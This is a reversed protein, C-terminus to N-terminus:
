AQTAVAEQDSAAGSERSAAKRKFVLRLGRMFASASDMLAPLPDSWSLVSFTIKGAVLSRLYELPTLLHARTLALGAPLDTIARLWRYDYHPAAEPLPLGVVDCYQMAPFDLGCAIALTHWGWPRVNIDLLKNVGSRPDQKFEVEVMGTLRMYAILKRADELIGPIERAEVFSSGLGYDIPYQRTRRATMSAVIAGERAYAAVSFQREGGGPIIEQIMVESAPMASLALRYQARMEEITAAPLAKLRMAHQLRISVTPKIIAPYAIDLNALDDEDRPYWTTPTTVGTARAMVNMQQKDCAYQLVDWGQTVLTFRSALADHNRAVLEVVEDQTPILLWGAYRPTEGLRLLYNLFAPSDLAGNEWRYRAVAYRSAWAARPTNDIVVSRIGRRGLSRMVGLAKFDSGLLIAGQAM